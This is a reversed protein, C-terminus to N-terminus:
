HKTEEEEEDFISSTLFTAFTIISFLCLTFLKIEFNDTTFLLGFAIITIIASIIFIIKIILKM